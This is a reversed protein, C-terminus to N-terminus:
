KCSHKLFKFQLIYFTYKTIHRAKHASILVGLFSNLFRHRDTAVSIFSAEIILM